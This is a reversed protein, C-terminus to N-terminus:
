WEVIYYVDNVQYGGRGEDGESLVKLSAALISHFGMERGCHSETLVPRRWSECRTEIAKTIVPVSLGNTALSVAGALM